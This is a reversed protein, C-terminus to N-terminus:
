TWSLRLPQRPAPRPTSRLLFLASLQQSFPACKAAATRRDGPALARRWTFRPAGPPERQADPQIWAGPQRQGHSRAHSPPPNFPMQASNPFPAPRQRRRPRGRGSTRESVLSGGGGGGPEYRPGFFALRGSPPARAAGAPAGFRVVPDNVTPTVPCCTLNLELAALSSDKVAPACLYAGFYTTRFTHDGGGCAWFNLPGKSAGLGPSSSGASQPWARHLTLQRGFLPFAM